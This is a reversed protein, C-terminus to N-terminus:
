CCGRRTLWSISGVVVVIRCDDVLYISGSRWLKLAQAGLLQSNDGMSVSRSKTM